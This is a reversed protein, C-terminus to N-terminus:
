VCPTRVSNRRSSVTSRQRRDAASCIALCSLGLVMLGMAGVHSVALHYGASEVEIVAVVLGPELDHARAERIITRVLEDRESESLATHRMTLRALIKGAIEADHAEIGVHALDSADIRASSSPAEVAVGPAPNTALTTSAGSFPDINTTLLASAALIFLRLRDM